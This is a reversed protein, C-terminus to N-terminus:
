SAAKEVVAAEIAKNKLDEPSEFVKMVMEPTINERPIGRRVFEDVIAAMLAQPTSANIQLNNTDGINLNLRVAGTAALAPDVLKALKVGRDFLTNIIKTTEPHLEGKSEEAELAHELRRTQAALLTGLGEIIEGSDRTKFFKALEVPESGPVICM